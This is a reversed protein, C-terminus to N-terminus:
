AIGNMQEQEILGAVPLGVRSRKSSESRGAPRTGSAQHYVEEILDM